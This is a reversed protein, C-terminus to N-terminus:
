DRAGAGNQFAEEGVITGEERAGDGVLDEEPEDRQEREDDTHESEDVPRIPRLTLDDLDNALDVGRSGRLLRSDRTLEHLATSDRKAEPDNSRDKGRRRDAVRQLQREGGGESPRGPAREQAAMELGGGEEGADGGQGHGRETQGVADGRQRARESLGAEPRNYGDGQREERREGPQEEAIDKEIQHVPRQRPTPHATANGRVRSQYGGQQPLDGFQREAVESARQAEERRVPREREGRAKKGPDVECRDDDEDARLDHLRTSRSSANALRNM